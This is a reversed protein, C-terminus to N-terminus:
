EVIGPTTDFSYGLQVFLGNDGTVGQRQLGISASVGQGQPRFRVSASYPTKGDESNRSQLEGVFAFNGQRTIPVEVGAFVSAKSSSNDVGAPLGDFRFRDYRVGLHGTVPAREGTVTGLYKTGVVYINFNNFLARDYGGGVAIRVKAPDSERTFLYKAGLAFGTSKLDITTNEPGDLRTIGGSIELDSGLRGAATLGYYKIKDDGLGADGMDFYNGQVRVGGPLPIQATPNLPLGVAGSLTLDARASHAASMMLTAALAAKFSNTLKM